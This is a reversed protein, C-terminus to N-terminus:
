NASFQRSAFSFVKSQLFSAQALLLVRSRDDQEIATHLVDVASVQQDLFFIADTLLWARVYQM